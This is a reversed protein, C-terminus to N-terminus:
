PQSVPKGDGESPSQPTQREGLKGKAKEIFPEAQEKMHPAIGLVKTM